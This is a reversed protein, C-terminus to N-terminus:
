GVSFDTYRWIDARQKYGGVFVSLYKGRFNVHSHIYVCADSIMCTHLIPGKFTCLLAQLHFLPITTPTIDCNASQSRKEEQWIHKNYCRLFEM